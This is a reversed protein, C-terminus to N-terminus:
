CPGRRFCARPWRTHGLLSPSVRLRHRAELCWCWRAGTKTPRRRRRKGEQPPPDCVDVRGARNRRVSAYHGKRRQQDPRRGAGVVVGRVKFSRVMSSTDSIASLDGRSNCPCALVCRTEGDRLPLDRWRGPRELSDIDQDSGPVPSQARRSVRLQM